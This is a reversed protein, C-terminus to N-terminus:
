TSFIHKRPGKAWIGSKKPGMLDIKSKKKM